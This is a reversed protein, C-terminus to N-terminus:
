RRISCHLQRAVVTRATAASKTTTWWSSCGKLTRLWVTPSAATLSCRAVAVLLVVVVVVEGAAGVVVLEVMAEGVFSVAAGSCAFALRDFTDVRGSAAGEGVDVV